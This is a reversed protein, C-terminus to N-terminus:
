IARRRASKLQAVIPEGGRPIWIEDLDPELERVAAEETSIFTRNGKRAGIVPRLRIRDTIGIMQDKNTIIFSFPGNLLLSAYTQRLKTYLDKEKEDMRDIQEWLPAAIVACAAELPMQHKRMLLDMTYAVVETDTMLTCKYGYAELYRQNIGYSSIEGNHVVSWDLINFPHAGGWWGGTNTPFRGHSTWIYAEYEELKYFVSLDEPYGVGKFVGMNKGSSAVFVGELKDNIEMVTEVIYDEETIGAPKNEVALFYRWLIPSDVIQKTKRTPIKESSAIYFKKKLYEEVDYRKDTNLYIMHFAYLDAHQPYIGYAAFGGGLGNSRDRMVAIAKTIDDGNFRKASTDMIGVVACGDLQKETSRPFFAM